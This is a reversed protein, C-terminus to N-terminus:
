ESEIHFCKKQDNSTKQGLYFLFLQNQPFLSKFVLFFTKMNFKLHKQANIQLIRFQTIKEQVFLANDTVSFFTKACVKVDNQGWSTVSHRSCYM